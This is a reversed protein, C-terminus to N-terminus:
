CYFSVFGYSYCEMISKHTPVLEIYYHYYVGHCVHACNMYLVYVTATMQIVDSNPM